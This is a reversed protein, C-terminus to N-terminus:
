LASESVARRIYRSKIQHWIGNRKDEEERAKIDALDKPLPYGGTEPLFSTLFASMFAASGFLIPPLKEDVQALAGMTTAFVGGIRALM